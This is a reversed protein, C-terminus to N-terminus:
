PSGVARGRSSGSQPSRGEGLGPQGEDGFASAVAHKVKKPDSVMSKVDQGTLKTWQSFPVSYFSPFRAKAEDGGREWTFTVAEPGGTSWYVNHNLHLTSDDTLADAAIQIVPRKGDANVIVNDHISINTGAQHLESENSLFIAGNFKSAVDYCQNHYIRVNLSSATALCAGGAHRIVNNRIIGNYSEYPKHPDLFQKGTKQGLMIGRLYVNEIRNNEFVTDTANGKAYLAISPIDHVYNKAVYTRNAGVIDVAQANAGDPADPHHIENGVIAVDDAGKVLKVIDAKSGHLNNGILKVHPVDIKVVYDDAGRIELGKVIWYLPQKDDRYFYLAIPTGTGDLVVHEHRYPELTIWARATGPRHISIGAKYIGKRMAITDGPEVVSTAKGLTAFAAELSRGNNQDSGHTDVYYTQAHVPLAFCAIAFSFWQFFRPHAALLRM